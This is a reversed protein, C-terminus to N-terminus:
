PGSSCVLDIYIAEHYHFNKLMTADARSRKRKICCTGRKDQFLIQLLSWQNIENAPAAAAALWAVTRTNCFLVGGMCSSIYRLNRLSTNQRPLVADIKTVYQLAANSKQIVLVTATTIQHHSLTQNGKSTRCLQNDNFFFEPADININM